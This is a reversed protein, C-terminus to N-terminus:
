AKNEKYEEWFIERIQRAKKEGILEVRQLEAESANAIARVTKFDRLLRKAQPMGINPLASVLYEQIERLSQGKQSHPSYAPSGERQERVLITQFLALTEQANKTQLIPVRYDVAITALMGLIAKHHVNRVAFLDDVGEIVFLPKQYYQKLKKVQELLRGDILSDVFDKVTKFEVGVEKSLVYDGADLRVLEILYGQENLSRILESGKERTDAFLKYSPRLEHPSVAAATDIFSSLTTVSPPPSSERPAAPSYFLAGAPQVSKVM